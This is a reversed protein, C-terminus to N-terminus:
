FGPIMFNGHLVPILLPLVPSTWSLLTPITLFLGPSRYVGWIGQKGTSSSQKPLLRPSPFDMIKSIPTTQTRCCIRFTQFGEQLEPVLYPHIGNKWLKWCCCFTEKWDPFHIGCDQGRGLDNGSMEDRMQGRGM